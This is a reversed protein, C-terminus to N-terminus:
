KCHRGKIRGKRRRVRETSWKSLRGKTDNAAGIKETRPPVKTERRRQSAERERHAMKLAERKHGKVTGGNQAGKASGGDIQASKGGGGMQTRQPAELERQAM